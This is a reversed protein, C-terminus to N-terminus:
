TVNYVEIQNAFVNIVQVVVSYFHFSVSLLM